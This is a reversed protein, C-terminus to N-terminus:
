FTWKYKVDAGASNEEGTEDPDTVNEFVGQISWENNLNYDINMEQKQNADGGFTNSFTFDLDDTIKKQIRLKTATKVKSQQDSRSAEIPSEDSETFEPLVSLKLGLTSDLGDNIKLQDVLMTGLSITTISTKDKSELNKSLDQTFGLTLLSFIDDQSLSPVSDLNIKLDDTAGIIKMKVLYDSVTARSEFNLSVSETATGDTLLIRGNNIVFDNGKFKFKSVDPVVSIEGILEPSSVAGSINFDALLFMDALRNKVHVSESTKVDIDATILENSDNEDNSIYKSVSKLYKSNEQFENFDSEVDGGNVNLSGKVLYPVQDGSLELKSDIFVKAGDIPKLSIDKAIINFLLKPFGLQFTVQGDGAIQGGEYDFRIKEFGWVSDNLVSSFSGNTFFGIEKEFRIDIQRGSLEHYNKLNDLKGSLVGRGEISGAIRKFVSTFISVYSLDINFNQEIKYGRNPSGEGRLTYAGGTGGINIAMNQISSNVVKIIGPSLLSIEKDFYRLFFRSVELNLDIDDPKDLSFSTNLSAKIDGGLSTNYINETSVIGLLTKLDSIFANVNVESRKSKKEGVYIKSDINIRDGFLSSELTFLSDELNLSLVSPRIRKQGIQSRLLIFRGAGKPSNDSYDYNINGNFVGRYNLGLSRFKDIEDLEVGGVSFKLSKLGEELVIIDGSVSATKKRLTVGTISTQKKSIELTAKLSDLLESYVSMQESSIKGYVILNDFDGKLLIDADTQGRFMTVFPEITKWHPNLVVPVEATSLNDIDFNINIKKDNFDIMGDIVGLERPLELENVKLESTNFRYGLTGVSKGRIKYDLVNLDNVELSNSIIAVDDIPGKFDLEFNGVGSVSEGVAGGLTTVDFNQTYLNLDIEESDLFGSIELPQNLVQLSSSINVLDEYIEIRTDYLGGQNFSLIKNDYGLSLDSLSVVSMTRVRLVEDEYELQVDGSLNTDLIKFKDGLFYFLDHSNLNSIRLLPPDLSYDTLSLSSPKLLKVEGKAVKAELKKLTINQNKYNGDYVLQDLNAYRSKLEKVEGKFAVEYSNLDGKIDFLNESKGEYLYEKLGLDTLEGKHIVQAKFSRNKENSIDGVMSIRSLGSDISLDIIRIDSQDLEFSFNIKDLQYKQINLNTLQGNLELSLDYPLVNLSYIEYVSQQYQLDIENLSISEIQFPIQSIIKNKYISFLDIETVDFSEEKKTNSDSAGDIKIYGDYLAVGSINFDSKLLSWLTFSLDLQSLKISFENYKKVNVNYLTSKLPIISFDYGSFSVEADFRKTIVENVRSSAM